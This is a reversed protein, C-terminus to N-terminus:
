IGLEKLKESRVFSLSIKLEEEYFATPQFFKDSGFIDVVYILLIKGFELKKIREMVIGDSNHYTHYDSSLITVEDGVNFLFNM